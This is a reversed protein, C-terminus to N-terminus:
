PDPRDFREKRQRVTNVLASLKPNVVELPVNNQPNTIHYSGYARGMYGALHRYRYNSPPKEPCFFEFAGGWPPQFMMQILGAGHMAVLVDTSRSIRLQQDFDFSAYDVANVVVHRAVTSLLHLLENENAFRRGIAHGTNYNRRVILTITIKGKASAASALEFAALLYESWAILLSSRHAICNEHNNYLPSLRAPVNFIARTYCVSRQQYREVLDPYWLLPFNRSYVWQWLPLYFGKTMRDMIVVQLDSFSFGLVGAALFANVFDHAIHFPSYDGARTVFYTPTDIVVDCRDEAPEEAETSFGKVFWDALCQKFMGAWRTKAPKQVDCAVSFAGKQFDLWPFDRAHPMKGYTLRAHRAECMATEVDHGPITRAYCVVESAGGKCMELRSSRFEKIAGFSYVRRCTESAPDEGGESLARDYEEQYCAVDLGAPDGPFAAKASDGTGSTSEDDADADSGDSRKSCARHAREYASAGSLRAPDLQAALAPPVAPSGGASWVAAGHRHLPWNRRSLARREALAVAETGGPHESVENDGIKVPDAALRRPPPSPPPPGDADAAPLADKSAHKRARQRTQAPKEGDENGSGTAATKEDTSADHENQKVRAHKGGAKAEPVDEEDLANLVQDPHKKLVRRKKPATSGAGDAAARTELPGAARTPKANLPPPPPSPPRPGDADAAPLADKSAHKRARQRTQAPKEGDENGSGTAATKEDTSADHANHKVVHADKGGATAEPVDEDDLANLVQDLHKKLVRRKKPKKPAGAGDGPGAAARTEAARTPKPPTPTKLPRRKAEAAEFDGGADAHREGPPNAGRTKADDGAAEEDTMAQLLTKYSGAKKRKRRPSRASGAERALKSRGRRDGGGQQVGRGREADEQGSGGATDEGRADGAGNSNDSDSDNDNDNSNGNDNSDPDGETALGAGAARARQQLLEDALAAVEKLEAPNLPRLASTVAAWPDAARPGPAAGRGFQWLAVSVAAFCCWVVLLLLAVRAAGSTRQRM